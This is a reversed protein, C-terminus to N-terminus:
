QRSTEKAVVKIGATKETTGKELPYNAQKLLLCLVLLICALFFIVM